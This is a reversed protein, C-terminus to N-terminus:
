SESCQFCKSGKTAKKRAKSRRQKIKKEERRSLNGELLKQYQLHIKNPKQRLFRQVTVIMAKKIGSM